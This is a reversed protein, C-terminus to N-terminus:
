ALSSVSHTVEDFAAIGEKKDSYGIFVANRAPLKRDPYLRTRGSAPARPLINATKISILVTDWPRSGQLERNVLWTANQMHNGM